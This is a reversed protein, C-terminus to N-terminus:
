TGAAIGILHQLSIWVPEFLRFGLAHSIGQALGGVVGLLVAARVSRRKYWPTGTGQGNEAVHPCLALQQRVMGRLERARPTSRRDLEARLRVL